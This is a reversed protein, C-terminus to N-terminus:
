PTWIVGKKIGLVLIVQPDGGRPPIFDIQLQGNASQSKNQKLDAIARSRAIQLPRRM